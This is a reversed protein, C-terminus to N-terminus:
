GLGRGIVILHDGTNEMESMLHSSVLVTRRPLTWSEV